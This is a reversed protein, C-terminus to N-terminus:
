KLIVKILVTMIMMMILITSNNSFWSYGSCICFLQGDTCVVHFFFIVDCVYSFLCFVPFDDGGGASAVALRVCLLVSVM